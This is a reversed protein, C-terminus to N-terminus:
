QKSRLKISHFANVISSLSVLKEENLQDIFKAM